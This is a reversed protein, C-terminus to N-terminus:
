NGQSAQQESKADEPPEVYSPNDINFYRRGTICKKCIHLTKNFSQHDTMYIYVVKETPDDAESFSTWCSDCQITIM